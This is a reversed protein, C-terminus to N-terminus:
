VKEIYLNTSHGVPMRIYMTKTAKIILQPARCASGIHDETPQSESFCYYYPVGNNNIYYEADAEFSEGAIDELSMWETNTINVNIDDM